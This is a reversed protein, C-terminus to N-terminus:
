LILVKLKDLLTKFENEIDKKEQQPLKNARRKLKMYETHNKNSNVLHKILTDVKIKETKSV